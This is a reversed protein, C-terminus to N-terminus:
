RVLQTGRAWPFPMRRTTRLLMASTALLWGATVVAFALLAWHTWGLLILAAAAAAFFDRMTLMILWEALVPSLRTRRLHVKVADFNVPEGSTKTRRGILVLGFTLMVLGAGGAAAADLDGATWMNYSIGSVFLINTAADILSDLMAGEDSTRHTARAIEGDVGDFVSAFQFLIAGGILGTSGGLVLSLVMAVGILATGISAHHPRIGSLRLLVHSISRSIPRNFHRSVIGDGSKGTSSVIHRGARRLVAFCCRERHEDLVLAEPKVILAEFLAPLVGRRDELSGRTLAGMFLEGAVTLTDVVQPPDVCPAFLVTMRPALRRCEDRLEISPVWRGGTAIICRAPAGDAEIRSIARVARAAAPIGAVRYEATAASSFVVLIQSM